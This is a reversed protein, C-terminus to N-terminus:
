RQGRHKVEAGFHALGIELGPQPDVFVAMHPHDALQGVALQMGVRAVDLGRAAAGRWGVAVCGVQDAPRLELHGGFQQHVLRVGGVHGHHMRVVGAELQVLHGHHVDRRVEHARDLDTICPALHEIGLEIKRDALVRRQAEVEHRMATAFQAGLDGVRFVCV